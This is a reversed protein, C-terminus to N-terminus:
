GIAPLRAGTTPSAELLYAIAQAVTAPARLEGSAHRSIFRQVQPFDANDCARIQAQMDTDMVGPDINLAHFPHPQTDQEVAVCRIFHELGAKAACYLSWGAYPKLAAGSSISALTKRCPTQAFVQLVTNMFVIAGSFNAALNAAVAHAAQTGALGVPDLSAANSIVVLEDQVASRWAALERLLVAEIDAPQAFDCAVSWSHPARRSFERVEFDRQRYELCLAEGLGRSGGSILALKM